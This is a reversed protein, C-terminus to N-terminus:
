IVRGASAFGHVPAFKLHASAETVVNGRTFAIKSMKWFVTELSSLQLMKSIALKEVSFPVNKPVQQLIPSPDRVRKLKKYPSSTSGVQSSYHLDVSRIPFIPFSYASVFMPGSTM